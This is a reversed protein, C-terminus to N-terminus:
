AADAQREARRREVWCVAQWVNSSDRLIVYSGLQCSRTSVATADAPVLRWWDPGAKNFARVYYNARRLTTKKIM